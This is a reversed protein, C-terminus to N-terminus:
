SKSQTSPMEKAPYSPGCSKSWCFDLIGNAPNTYKLYLNWCKVVNVVEVVNNYINYINYFTSITTFYPEDYM